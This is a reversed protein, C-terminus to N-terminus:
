SPLETACECTIGLFIHRIICAWQLSPCPQWVVASSFQAPIQATWWFTHTCIFVLLLPFLYIHEQHTFCTIHTIYIYIYINIESPLLLVIEFCRWLEIRVPLLLMYSYMCWNIHIYVKFHFDLRGIQLTERRIRRMVYGAQQQFFCFLVRNQKLEANIEGKNKRAKTKRVAAAQLFTCINHESLFTFLLDSGLCTLQVLLNEKQKISHMILCSTFFATGKFYATSLDTKESEWSYILM